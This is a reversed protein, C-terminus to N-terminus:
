INGLYHAKFVDNFVYIADCSVGAKPQAGGALFIVQTLLPYHCGLVNKM